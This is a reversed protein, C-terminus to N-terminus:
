GDFLIEQILEEVQGAVRRYNFVERAHKLIESRRSRWLEKEIIMSIMAEALEKADAEEGILIGDMGDRIVDPVGGIRTAIVPVGMALCEMLFLSNGEMMRTPLVGCNARAYIDVLESNPIFGLMRVSGAPFSAVKEVLKAEFHSEGDEDNATSGVIKLSVSELHQDLVIRFADLLEILGKGEHLRGVYLFEFVGNNSDTNRNEALFADDVGNLIVWHRIPKIGFKNEALSVAQNNITVIGSKASRLLRQWSNEDLDSYLKCSHHYFVIKAKPLARAVMFCLSYSEHVIVVDPKMRKLERVMALNLALHDPRVVGFWGKVLRYPLKQALQSIKTERKGVRVQVFRERDFDVADVAEDWLSLVKWEFEENSLHKCTNWIVLQPGGAKVPPIPNMLGCVIAVLPKSSL